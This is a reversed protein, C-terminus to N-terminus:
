ICIPHPPYAGRLGECEKPDEYFKAGLRKLVKCREEMTLTVGLRAIEVRETVDNDYFDFALEWVGGSGDEPEWGFARYMREEGVPEVRGREVDSARKQSTWFKGGIKLLERAFADEKDQENVPYRHTPPDFRDFGLFNMEVADAFDKVVVGGRPWAYITCGGGEESEEWSTRKWTDSEFPNTSSWGKPLPNHIYRSLDEPSSDREEVESSPHPTSESGMSAATRNPLVNTAFLVILLLGLVLTCMLM